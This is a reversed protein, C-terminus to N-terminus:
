PKDGDVRCCKRRVREDRFALRHCRIRNRTARSHEAHIGCGLGHVRAFWRPVEASFQFRAGLGIRFVVQLSVRPAVLCRTAGLTKVAPLVTPGNPRDGRCPRTSWALWQLPVTGWGPPSLRAHGREWWVVGSFCFGPSQPLPGPHPRFLGGTRPTPKWGALARVM